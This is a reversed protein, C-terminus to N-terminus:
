SRGDPEGHVQHLAHHCATKCTPLVFPLQIEILQVSPQRTLGECPCAAKCQWSRYRKMGTPGIGAEFSTDHAM